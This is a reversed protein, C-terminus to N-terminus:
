SNIVIGKFSFPLIKRNTSKYFENSTLLPDQIKNLAKNPM